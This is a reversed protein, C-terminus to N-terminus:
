LNFMLYAVNILVILHAMQDQWIAVHLAVPGETTQHLLDRWKVLVFRLDIIWHLVSILLAWGFRPLVSGVNGLSWFFMLCCFHIGAHLYGAPSKVDSKYNAIWDSQLFWDGIIHALLGLMLIKTM